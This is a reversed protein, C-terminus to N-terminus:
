QNGKGEFVRVTVMRREEICNVDYAYEMWEISEPEGHKGGGYWYTFGVWEGTPCQVAVADNEYHRCSESPLGTEIGSSRIESMASGIDPHDDWAEDVEDGTMDERIPEDHQWEHDLDLIAYKLKQLPTM